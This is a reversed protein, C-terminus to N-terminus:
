HISQFPHATCLIFSLFFSNLGWAFTQHATSIIQLYTFFLSSSSSDLYDYSTRYTPVSRVFYDADQTCCYRALTRSPPLEDATNFRGDIMDSLCKIANEVANRKQWCATSRSNHTLSLLGAAWTYDIFVVIQWPPM